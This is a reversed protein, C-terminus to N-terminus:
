RNSFASTGSEPLAQTNRASSRESAHPESPTVRAQAGPLSPADALHCAVARARSAGRAVLAPAVSRCRDIAAFCRPHFPCGPPIRTPDPVEGPLVIRQRDGPAGGRLAKAMAPMASLLAHTYPHSPAAFLEASPATEVFKGLYMVAVRDSLHRIVALDHSIMVMALGLEARIASLLNIIQSQVSVDLASVAEDALIVRPSLALARAIAIRQRQGGSFQHPLRDAAAAPLGVLELLERVRRGIEPRRHVILPEAIITKVTHRPNLSGFPDQFVMQMHTRSKALQSARCTALDIGDLLIEGRDPRLLRMVLRAMTSKGCGSEGVIGLIEGPGLDFDVGDVARLIRGDPLTFHKCLGRVRLLTTM